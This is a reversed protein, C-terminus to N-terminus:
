VAPHDKDVGEVADMRAYGTRGNPVSFTFIDPTRANRTRRVLIVPFLSHVHYCSERADNRAPCRVYLRGNDDGDLGQPLFLVLDGNLWM